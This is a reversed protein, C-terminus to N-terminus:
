YVSSAHLEIKLKVKKTKFLLFAPAQGVYRALRWQM